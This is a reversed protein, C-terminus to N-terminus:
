EEDWIVTYRKGALKYTDVIRRLATEGGRAHFTLNQWAPDPHDPNLPWTIHVEFGLGEAHSSRDHLISYQEPLDDASPNADWADKGDQDYHISNQLPDIWTGDPAILFEPVPQPEGIRILPDAMNYGSIMLLNCIHELLRVQGNFTMRQRMLAVFSYYDQGLTAFPQMLAQMLAQWRPKRLAMPTLQDALHLFQVQENTYAM